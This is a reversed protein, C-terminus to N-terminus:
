DRWQAVGRRAIEENFKWKMEFARPLGDLWHLENLGDLRDLVALVDLWHLEDFEDLVNLM